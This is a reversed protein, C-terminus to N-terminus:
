GRMLTDTGAMEADIRRVLEPDRYVSRPKLLHQVEFMLRHIEPDDAAIRALAKSFRLASEFDAPREGRTDPYVFDPVASMAWPTEILFQAEALFAEALGGLPDADAARVQLMRHLLSVEQAAVSMGQGYIPNFRCIADGIPLLGRPFDELREFHRWVSELFGFRAVKGIRTADKIADYLTPTRLSQAYALFGDWDEPPWDGRRGGLAVMWRNGEVPMMACGRTEHPPSPLISAGKWDALGDAPIAFLASAYGIDVGVKTEEPLKQGTSKLLALTPTGHASADILLDTAITGSEGGAMEYRIGTVTGGDPSALVEAARCRQHLLINDYQEVRRRLTLEILPRTMAYTLWGLDRRPFPDYGPRDYRMDLGVRLPVAGAEALEVDFGPFLERLARQGGGLLGHLQPSQPVGLRPTADTPLRDRELVIVQEFHDALARAAALGSIAPGIVVAGRGITVPM